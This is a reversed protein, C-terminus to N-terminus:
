SGVQEYTFNTTMKAGTTVNEEVVQLPNGDADMKTHVNITQNLPEDDGSGPIPRTLYVPTGQFSM